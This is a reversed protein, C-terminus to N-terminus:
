LETLSTNLKGDPGVGILLKKGPTLEIPSKFEQVDTGRIVKISMVTQKISGAQLVDPGGKAMNDIHTPNNNGFDLIFTCPVDSQNEVAIQWERGRCGVFMSMSLIVILLVMCRKM